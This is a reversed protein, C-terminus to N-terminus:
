VGLRRLQSNVECLGSQLRMQERALIAHQREVERCACCYCSQCSHRNETSVRAYRSREAPATNRALELLENMDCDRHWAIVAVYGGVACEKVRKAVYARCNIGEHLAAAFPNNNLIKLLLADNM